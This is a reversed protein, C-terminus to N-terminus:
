SATGVQDTKIVRLSPSNRHVGVARKLAEHIPEVDGTSIIEVEVKQISRLNKLTSAIIDNEFHVKADKFGPVDVKFHFLQLRPMTGKSFRFPASTHFCRLEPFAGYGKITPFIHSPLLLELSILKPLGGLNELDQEQVAKVDVSLHSLIPVRSVNIWAPLLSSTVSLHLERLQIHPEFDEWNLEGGISSRHGTLRLVKIKGLKRMSQVLAVKQSEDLDKIWIHLERLETLSGLENVFNVSMGVEGLWLEELSTLNGMRDPVTTGEDTRLCKLQRLRVVRGPLERIGTGRMDLTQLSILDCIEKPLKETPTNHLGLYRLLHLKGLHKLHYSHGKFLTCEELALVRLVGFKALPLETVFHCGTANFSRLREPATYLLPDGKETDRMQVVIRRGTNMKKQKRSDTPIPQKNGDLVTVFNVDTSLTRIMDFVLGHLRCGTIIQRLSDVIPMILSSQILESFLTEGKEFLGSGSQEDVLGEAVWKWVLTEKQIAYNEPFISLHLLCTQLNDPLEYYILFLIKRTKAEIHDSGRRQDSFSISKCMSFWDERVRSWCDMPKGALLVAMTIIALPVGCCAHLLTESVRLGGRPIIGEGGFLRTYFLEESDSDSLAQLEYVEDAMEAVQGDRTTTVVVNEHGNEILIDMIIEWSVPWIDDVVFFYRKNELLGRIIYILETEDVAAEGLLSTYKRKDIQLLIDMFVHKMDPNRSLSVFVNYTYGAQIRNYVAKALTTKGLGGIGFISVIKTQRSAKSSTGHKLMGIVEDRSAEVGVTSSSDQFRPQRWRQTRDGLLSKSANAKAAISDILCNGDLRILKAKKRIDNIRRAIDRRAMWRPKMVMRTAKQLFSKKEKKFGMVSDIADDVTYSFERAENAWMRTLGDLRAQELTAVM